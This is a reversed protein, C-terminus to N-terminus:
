VSAAVAASSPATARPAGIPHWVASAGRLRHLQPSIGVPRARSRPRQVAASPLAAAPAPRVALLSHSPAQYCLRNTPPRTCRLTWPVAVPIAIAVLFQHPRPRPCSPPSAYFVVFCATSPGGPPELAPRFRDGLAVFVVAESAM